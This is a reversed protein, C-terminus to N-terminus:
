SFPHKIGLPEAVQALGYTRALMKQVSSCQSIMPITQMDPQLLTAVKIDSLEELLAPISMRTKPNRSAKCELLRLLLLGVVCIFAHVRIKQDTWHYMPTFSISTRDHMRKFCDEVTNKGRYSAVIEGTPLDDRDTFLLTKGFFLRRQRYLQYWDMRSHVRHHSKQPLTVQLLGQVRYKALLLQVKRVPQKVRAWNVEALAAKAKELRRQQSYVQKRYLARNYTVVVTRRSGFVEKQTRYAQLAEEEGSEAALSLEQYASLDVRLLDQHQSPVLSGIFSVEPWQQLLQVNTQSNNGKDFVLTVRGAGRSLQLWRELLAPIVQPFLKADHTSGSYVRHLLPLGLHQTVALALGVQRLHDRGAKNHGRQALDSETPEQLFTFFNTTDYLLVDLPLQYRQSLQQWLEAEIRAIAAESLCDMAEWFAQSTLKDAELGMLEPLVTTRYWCSIGAKSTPACCRNIAALVLLQGVPLSARHMPLHQDILHALHLDQALHFLAAVEGFARWSVQLPVQAQSLKAKITQPTGLYTQRQRWRSGEKVPEVLYYYSSGKLKKTRIFPKM